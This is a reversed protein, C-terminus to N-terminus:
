RAPPPLTGCSDRRAWDKSRSRVLRCVLGRRAARRRAPRVDQADESRTPSYDARHPGPRGTTCRRDAGKRRYNKDVFL